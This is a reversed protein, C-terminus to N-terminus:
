YQLRGLGAVGGARAVVLVLSATCSITTPVSCELCPCCLFLCLNNTVRLLSAPQVHLGVHMNARENMKRDIDIPLSGLSGIQQVGVKEQLAIM